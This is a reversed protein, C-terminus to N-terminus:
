LPGEVEVFAHMPGIRRVVGARTRVCDVTQWAARRDGDGEGYVETGATNSEPM